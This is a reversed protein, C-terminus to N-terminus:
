SAINIYAHVHPAGRFHIVCTPGEIRWNDWVQDKNLDEDQFFAIRLADLGGGSELLKMAEEGDEQRYPALITKLCGQMLQKQDATMESVLLGKREGKRIQIDSEAPIAKLLAQKSQKEDLAKFLENVKQTQYYFLNASPSSEEGHGYVMGGGFATKPVSNGDARLTLHRGTLVWQFQDTKPDGFMGVSYAGMGGDDDDMQKSLLTMGEKSTVSQIIKELIARQKDSYFDSGILPKTVHWNAHVKSRLADAFPRCIEAAQKDSLTAHFEAVLTEAQSKKTPEFALGRAALPLAAMTATTMLFKRRHWPSSHCEPCPKNEM